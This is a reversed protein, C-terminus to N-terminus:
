GGPAPKNGLGAQFSNEADDPTEQSEYADILQKMAEGIDCPEGNCTIQDGKINITLTVGDGGAGGEADPAGSGDPDQMDVSGSPQGMDMQNEKPTNSPRAKPSVGERSARGPESAGAPEHSHAALFRARM